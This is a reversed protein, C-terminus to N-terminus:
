NFPPRNVGYHAHIRSLRIEMRAVIMGMTALLGICGGVGCWTATAPFLKALLGLIGIPLAGIVLVASVEKFLRHLMKQAREDGGFHCIPSWFVTTGVGTAVFLFLIAIWANWAAAHGLFYAPPIELSVTAFPMACDVFSPAWRLMISISLHYYFTCIFLVLMSASQLGALPTPSPFTNQALLALGVGLIISIITIFSIGSVEISRKRLVEGTLPELAGGLVPPAEQPHTTSSTGSNSPIDGDFEREFRPLDRVDVTVCLMM